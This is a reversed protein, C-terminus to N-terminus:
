QMQVPVTGVSLWSLGIWIVWETKRLSILRELLIKGESKGVLLRNVKRKNGHTSCAKGM